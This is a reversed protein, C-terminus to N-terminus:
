LNLELLYVGVNIKGTNIKFKVEQQIWKKEMELDKLMYERYAVSANGNNADNVSLAIYDQADECGEKNCLMLIYFRALYEGVEPLTITPFLYEVTFPEFKSGAKAYHYKGDACKSFVGSTTKCDTGANRCHYYETSGDVFPIQCYEGNAAKAALLFFSDFLYKVIKELKFNNM